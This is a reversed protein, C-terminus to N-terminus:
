DELYDRFLNEYVLVQNGIKCMTKYIIDNLKKLTIKDLWITDVELGRFYMTM